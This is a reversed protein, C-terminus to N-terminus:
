ALTFSWLAMNRGPMYTLALFRCYFLPAFPLSILVEANLYGLKGSVLHYLLVIVKIAPFHIGVLLFQPDDPM